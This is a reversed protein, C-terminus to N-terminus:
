TTKAMAIRAKSDKKQSKEVKGDGKPNWDEGDNDHSDSGSDSACAEHYYILFSDRRLKTQRVSKRTSETKKLAADNSEKANDDGDEKDSDDDGGGGRLRLVPIAKRGKAKVQRREHM